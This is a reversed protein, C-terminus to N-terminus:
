AYPFGNKKGQFLSILKGDDKLEFKEICRVTVIVGTLSDFFGIGGIPRTAEKIEEAMEVIEGAETQVEHLISILAKVVENRDM